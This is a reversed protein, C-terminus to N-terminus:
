RELWPEGTKCCKLKLWPHSLTFVSSCDGVDSM